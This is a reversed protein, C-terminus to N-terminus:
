QTKAAMLDALLRTDYDNLAVCVLEADDQQNCIAVVVPEHGLV